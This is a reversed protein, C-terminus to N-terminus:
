GGCELSDSWEDVVNLLQLVTSRGKIFGFQKASFLNNALCFEVIHDRILSELVKCCICTLSIPRYNAVDTKSGKKHIMSIISKTWDIPLKGSELSLQFLMKLASTIETRIEFIVRPHVFDPGPSKEVKLKSLKSFIDVDTISLNGMMKSPIDTILSSYTDDAEDTYINSIFNAVKPSANKMIM